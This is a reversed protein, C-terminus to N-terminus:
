PPHPIGQAQRVDLPAVMREARGQPRQLGVSFSRMHSSKTQWGSRCLHETGVPVGLVVIGRDEDPGRWRDVGRSWHHRFDEPKIAASNWVKTKGLNVQIGASRFLSQKVLLFIDAVRSPDCLVYIDDLYAFLMEGQRLTANVQTLAAHQGLACLAPMLPGGQESGEGQRIEHPRERTTTGCM